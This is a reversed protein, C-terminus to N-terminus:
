TGVHFYGFILYFALANLFLSFYLCEAYNFLSGYFVNFELSFIGSFEFHIQTGYKFIYM